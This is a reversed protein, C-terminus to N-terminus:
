RAEQDPASPMPRWHTVDGVTYADSRYVFDSGDFFGEVGFTVPTGRDPLREGVPIWREAERAQHLEATLRAVEARLADKDRHAEAIQGELRFEVPRTNLANIMDVLSMDIVQRYAEHLPCGPSDHEYAINENDFKYLVFNKACFPCPRLGDPEEPTEVDLVPDDMNEAKGIARLSEEFSLNDNDPLEDSM